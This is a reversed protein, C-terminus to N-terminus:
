LLKFSNELIYPMSQFLEYLKMEGVRIKKVLEKALIVFRRQDYPKLDEVIENMNNRKLGPQVKYMENIEDASNEDSVEGWASENSSKSSFSARVSGPDIRQCSSSSAYKKLKKCKLLIKCCLSNLPLDTVTSNSFIVFFNLLKM